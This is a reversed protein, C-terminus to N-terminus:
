AGLLCEALAQKARRATEEVRVRSRRVPKLPSAEADGTGEPAVLGGQSRVRAGSPCARWGLGWVCVPLKKETNTYLFNIKFYCRRPMQMGTAKEEVHTPPPAGRRATGRTALIAAIM